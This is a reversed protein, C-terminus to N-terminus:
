RLLTLRRTEVGAGTELRVVYVGSALGSGEFTAVHRGAEAAGDALVAVERGLADYVALRVAGAEALGFAVQARGTAPNPYVALAEAGEAQVAAEAAEASGWAGVDTVTWAGPDSASATRGAVSSGTVVLTFAERDVTGSPFSGVRITYTYSGAPANSPVQQTFSSTVSGGPALPGGSAIMGEKVLVGEREATFYLDGFVSSPQWNAVTYSFTVSGGPAVTLPTTASAALVIRPRPTDSGSFLYARGADIPSVGPDELPAGVLLDGRGDGGADPSGAVAEGFLGGAEENPSALTRLVAGTSGSFLYARGADSPAFGPDEFSAGVLLDGRGDDDGNAVGAVSQGFRGNEEPNPSALTHLVAGTAGSFLYARGANDPAFGPDELNAGVLLDGRGDGDADPVGAVSHGFRGNEEQNPSALTRLVAGTAGSFLYARGANAPALGPDETRAGVLLDGRGDGNADPVGAVSHGFQGDAEVAPSALVHLLAGDAGSFLYARGAGEPSAGPDEDRAGVLLDGRGDGDADAVGAVSVGFSGGGEQNPSALVRLLSGDAGSFVYARGAGEPSAGPDEDPAGVLLDGRGDGDVDPVGAVAFGFTGDEEPSPSALARLLAGDTGSFLYARGAEQPSAGPDELRAGLLLDARADGDADPVFAVAGGFRGDAEQSPSRLATPPGAPPPPPPPAALGDLFLVWVAGRSFGGDDDWYAGVALDTKGDGDLDGLSAMSRGFRDSEDLDGTFGGEAASIKRHEKVRGEANLLLLWVAGADYSLSSNVGDNDGHAGVALDPVGDGDLDGVPTVSVGFYDNSDLIGGSSGFGGRGQSIQQSKKVTGDGNLFLIWVAGANHWWDERGPAGVALDTIGDGDLDGVPAVSRGFNDYTNLNFRSIKHYEKISGDVEMFLLWVAGRSIDDGHAGVALDTVGDGDLDGLSAVSAGFFDNRRLRGTFGGETASIKQHARVTGDPNLFLVWVAGANLRGDDHGYAGVALDTVGDGDLDGLSAVSSGFYDGDTIAGTFGGATDSIKQHAKVTGDPNLFLVYVAGRNSGGDADREAGVALDTIGDGDLDGMSAVSSGFTDRDNLTGTFGGETESIKQHARVIDEPLASAAGAGEGTASSPAREQALAPGALVLSALILFTRLAATWHRALAPSTPIATLILSRLM